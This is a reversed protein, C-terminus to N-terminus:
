DERTLVHSAAHIHGAMVASAWAADQAKFAAIMERHHRISRQREEASYRSFTRLALPPEIVVQAITLLRANEAANLIVRHFATNAQAFAQTAAQSEGANAEMDTTLAELQEIDQSSVRTAARGAAYSEVLARLEYLDVLDKVGITSVQAGQNPNLTVLGESALRRLAERVPTRSVACIVTLEDEKLRMGPPFQGTVIQTKITQYASANAKSV